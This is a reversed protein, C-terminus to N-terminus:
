QIIELCDSDNPIQMFEQKRGFPTLVVEKDNPAFTVIEKSWSGITGDFRKVSAMVVDGLRIQVGNKDKLGIEFIKKM